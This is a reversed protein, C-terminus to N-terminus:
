SNEVKRRRIRRKASRLVASHIIRNEEEDIFHKEESIIINNRECYIPFMEAVAIRDNSNHKIREGKYEESNITSILEEIKNDVESKTTINLTRMIAPILYRRGELETKFKM